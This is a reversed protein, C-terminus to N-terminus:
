RESSLFLAEGQCIVGRARHSALHQFLSAVEPPEGPPPEMLAMDGVGGLGLWGLEPHGLARGAHRTLGLLAEEVTLGQILCALTGIVWPDYVPSSGPNLDTGLAMPVGAARLEAVPPARDKLYLQAGPLLVAVTGHDALAQVGAADIRELHDVSVAGLAAAAAAVGTYAVQEAHAKVRLGRARGASLIEVAEDLTFAGRDCYVDIAEAHPACRPLQEDIIQRVYAARDGRLEAPLTHAGLFTPIVRLPGACDAAAQLMRLEVEPDLGYGSKVEVTTVGRRLLHDLRARGLAALGARSAARTARVTSLIGGGAELLESYSRGALRQEFEVARSGAWIAHTHPDVLGPLGILGRGDIVRDADPARAAEGIFSVRGDRFAVSAGRLLGLGPLSPDCTYLTALDHVLLDARGREPLAGDPRDHPTQPADNM